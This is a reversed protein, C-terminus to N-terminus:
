AEGTLRALLEGMRQTADQQVDTQVHSYLNMTTGIQTHGLTEMIVRSHVNLALLLSACTHRLDHLRFPPLGAAKLLRHFDRTVNRPDLPAGTLTTFVM